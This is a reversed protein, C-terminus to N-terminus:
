VEKIETTTQLIQKVISSDGISLWAQVQITIVYRYKVDLDVDTLDETEIVEFPLEDEGVQLVTGFGLPPFINLLTELLYNYDEQYEAIFEIAYLINFPYKYPKKEYTGDALQVYEKHPIFRAKDFIIGRPLRSVNISPSTAKQLWSEPTGFTVPVEKLQHYEDEIMIGKVKNKVASDIDKLM